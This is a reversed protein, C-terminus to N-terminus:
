LMEFVKKTSWGENEGVRYVLKVLEGYGQDSNEAM